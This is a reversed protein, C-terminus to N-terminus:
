NFEVAAPLRYISNQKYNEIVGYGKFNGGQFNTFFQNGNDLNSNLFGVNFVNQAGFLNYFYVKNEINNSLLTVVKKLSWMPITKYEKSEKISVEMLCQKIFARRKGPSFIYKMSQSECHDISKISVKNHSLDKLYDMYDNSMSVRCHDFLNRFNFFKNKPYEGCLANFNDLITGVSLSNFYRVGDTNVLFRSQYEFPTVIGSSNINRQVEPDIVAMHEVFYMLKSTIKSEGTKIKKSTFNNLFSLSLRTNDGDIFLDGKTDILNIESEYEVTVKKSESILKAASAETQTLAYILSAFIKSILDEQFKIKEYNHKFYIKVKGDKVIDVQETQADKKGGFILFNYKHQSQILTRKEESIIFKSLKFVDSEKNNLIKELEIAAPSSAQMEYLESQPINLYTKLSQTKDFSSETRFLTIKLIKLLDLQVEASLGLSVNQSKEQSIHIHDSESNSEYNIIELKSLLQYKLYSGAVASVGHYLPVSALAGASFSLKDERFIIENNELTTIQDKDLKTFPFFLKEFHTTLGSEYSNSYHIWTYDRKFIVGAYGLLNKESINIIKDNKLKTLLKTADVEVSFSDTVIWRTSDFLDPALNRNLTLNFNSFPKQYSLGISNLGGIISFSNQNLIRKAELEGLHQYQNSYESLITQFVDNSSSINNLIEFSKFDSASVTSLFSFIIIALSFIQNM